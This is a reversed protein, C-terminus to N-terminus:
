EKDARNHSLFVDYDFTDAHTVRAEGGTMRLTAFSRAVYEVFLSQSEFDARGNRASIM